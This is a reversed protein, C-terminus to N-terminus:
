SHGAAGLMLKVGVWDFGCIILWASSLFMEPWQWDKLYQWKLQGRPGSDM